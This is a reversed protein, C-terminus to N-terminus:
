RRRWSPGQDGAYWRAPYVCTFAAGGSRPRRRRREHEPPRQRHETTDGDDVAPFGGHPQDVGDPIQRRLCARRDLRHGQEGVRVAGGREDPLGVQGVGEAGGGGPRVKVVGHEFPGEDLGPGVGGPDAPAEDGLVGHEGLQALLDADGEDAGVGVRHALQAVLDAGLQDGLFDADGDRRPATARDRGEVGGERLRVPDAVRQHELGGGAAAPAADADDGRGGVEGLRELPGAGLRQAREAAAGQEKLPEDGAGPVDLDLDDGVPLAGGPGEADAVAGHLPAVLLDDLLRRGGDQGRFLSVVQLGRGLPEGQGDAVPPGGGDLEEVVRPVVPEGEELDVGPQLDLVRDGLQGGAGVEDLELQVHRPAPLELPSLGASDPCAM